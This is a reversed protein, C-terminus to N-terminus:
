SGFLGVPHSLQRGLFQLKDPNAVIRLAEVRDGVIDFFLVGALKPGVFGLVAQEGNLEADLDLRVDPLPRRM